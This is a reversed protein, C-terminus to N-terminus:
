LATIFGRGPKGFLLMGGHLIKCGHGLSLPRVLSMCCCWTMVGRDCLRPQDWGCGQARIASNEHQFAAELLVEWSRCLETGGSPRGSKPEGIVCIVFCM